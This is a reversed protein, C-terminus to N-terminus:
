EEPWAAEREWIALDDGSDSRRRYGARDLEEREKVRLARLHQRLAARFLASRSTRRMRAARDAARLLDEDLVIQITRVVTSDVGCHVGCDM